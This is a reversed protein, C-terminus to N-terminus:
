LSEDFFNHYFTGIKIQEDQKRSAIAPMGQQLIESLFLILHESM